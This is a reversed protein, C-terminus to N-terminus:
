GSLCIVSENICGKSSVPLKESQEKPQPVNVKGKKNPALFHLLEEEHIKRHKDEWSLLFVQSHKLYEQSCQTSIKKWAWQSFAAKNEEDEDKYNDDGCIM